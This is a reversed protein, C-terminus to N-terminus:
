GEALSRLVLHGMYDLLISVPGIRENCLVELAEGAGRVTDVSPYKRVLIKICHVHNYSLRLVFRLM